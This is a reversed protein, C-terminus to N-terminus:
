KLGEQFKTLIMRSRSQWSYQGADRHAQESLRKGDQPHVRLHTLAREWADVEGAPLLLANSQNFVERLVPLDSSCIPRGSALYEFVKLPSSVQSIDEGGSNTFGPKYPILLADAAAQYLPLDHNPIFGTLLLNAAGALRAKEKWYAVDKEEGGVWIFNIQPLHRALDLVLDMGRGPYLHGTCVASWNDPLGLQQRAVAPEPLSVYRELDVGSPAVLLPTGEMTRPYTKILAEALAHTIPVLLKRGGLRIFWRYWLPGFAGGPMQHMELIAPLGMLLSVVAAPLGRTIVLDVGLRSAHRVAQWAFGRRGLLGPKIFVLQFPATLGYLDSLADWTPIEANGAGVLTVEHGLQALSQCVKMVQIANARQSPLSASSLYAIKM